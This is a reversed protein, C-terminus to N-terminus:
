RIIPEALGAEKCTEMIREIGRGWFEIMGARFFANAIDPNFPQSPHKAKLKAITWNRPLEGSNWIMIKGPNNPLDALLKRANGIGIIEGENNRGVIL